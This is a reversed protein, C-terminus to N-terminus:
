FTSSIRNLAKLFSDKPLWFVHSLSQAKPMLLRQLVQTRTGPAAEPFPNIKSLVLKKRRDAMELSQNHNACDANNCDAVQLKM